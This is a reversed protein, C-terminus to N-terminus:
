TSTSWQWEDLEWCDCLDQKSTVFAHLTLESQCSVKLMVFAGRLVMMIKAACCKQNNYQHNKTRSINILTDVEDATLLSTHLQHLSAQQYIFAENRPYNYWPMWKSKINMAEELRHILQMFRCRAAYLTHSTKVNCLRIVVAMTCKHLVVSKIVRLYM